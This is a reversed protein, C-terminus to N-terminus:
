EWDHNRLWLLLIFHGCQEKSWSSVKAWKKKIHGGKESCLAFNVALIIGIKFLRDGWVGNWRKESKIWTQFRLVEWLRMHRATATEVFFSTTKQLRSTLKFKDSKNKRCYEVWWIKQTEGLWTDSGKVMTYKPNQKCKISKQSIRKKLPRKEQSDLM